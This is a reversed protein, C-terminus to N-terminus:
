QCHGGVIRYKKRKTKHCGVKSKKEPVPDSNAKRVCSVIEISAYVVDYLSTSTAHVLDIVCKPM